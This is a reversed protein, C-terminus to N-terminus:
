EAHAVVDDETEREALPAEPAAGRALDSVGREVPHAEAPLPVALTDAM